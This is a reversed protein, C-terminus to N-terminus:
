RIDVADEVICLMRSDELPKSKVVLLGSVAKSSDWVHWMLSLYVFVCWPTPQRYYSATISNKLESSVHNPMREPSSLCTLDESHVM